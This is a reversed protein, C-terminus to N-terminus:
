PDLLCPTDKKMKLFYEAVAPIFDSLLQFFRIPMAEQRQVILKTMLCGQRSLLAFALGRFRMDRCAAASPLLEEWLASESFLQGLLYFYRQELLQTAAVTVRHHRPPLAADGLIRRLEHQQQRVDWPEGSVEFHAARFARLPEMALRLLLLRGLPQSAIFTNAKKRHRENEKVHDPVEGGDAAEDAM